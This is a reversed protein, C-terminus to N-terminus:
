KLLTIPTSTTITKKYSTIGNVVMIYNGNEAPTNKVTGDWGKLTAGKEYYILLGWSNYINM